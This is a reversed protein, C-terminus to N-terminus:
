RDYWLFIIRVVLVLVGIVTFLLRICERLSVPMVNCVDDTFAEQVGCLM